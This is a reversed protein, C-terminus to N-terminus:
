SVKHVALIDPFASAVGRYVHLMDAFSDWGAAPLEDMLRGGMENFVDGTKKLASMVQRTTQSIANDNGSIDGTSTSASVLIICFVVLKFISFIYTNSVFFINIIIEKNM